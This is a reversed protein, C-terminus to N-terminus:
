SIDSFIVEWNFSDSCHTPFAALNISAVNPLTLIDGHVKSSHSKKVRSVLEDRM